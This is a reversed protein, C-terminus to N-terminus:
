TVERRLDLRLISKSAWLQKVVNNGLEVIDRMNPSVVARDLKGDTDLPKQVIRIKTGGFVGQRGKVVPWKVGVRISMVKDRVDEDRVHHRLDACPPRCQLTVFKGNRGHV